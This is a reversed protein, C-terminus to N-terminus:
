EAYDSRMLASWPLRQFAEQRLKGTQYKSILVVTQHLHYCYLELAPLYYETFFIGISVEKRILVKRTWVRGPKGGAIVLIAVQDECTDCTKANAQLLGHKSCKTVKNYMHFIIWPADDTADQELLPIPYAPCNECRRLACKFHWLTEYVPTCMVENVADAPKKHWHGTDDPHVM